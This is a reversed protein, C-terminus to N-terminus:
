EGAESIKQMNRKTAINLNLCFIWLFQMSINQANNSKPDSIFICSVSIFLHSSEQKFLYAFQFSLYREIEETAEKCVSCFVGLLKQKPAAAYKFDNQWQQGTTDSLNCKLLRIKPAQPAKSIKNAISHRTNFLKRNKQNRIFM